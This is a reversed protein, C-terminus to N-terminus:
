SKSNMGPFATRHAHYPSCTIKDSSFKSPETQISYAYQRCESNTVAELTLTDSVSIEHDFNPYDFVRLDEQCEAPDSNYGVPNEFPFEFALLDGENFGVNIHVVTEGIADPSEIWDSVDM